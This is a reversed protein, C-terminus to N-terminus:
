VSELALERTDLDTRPSKKAPEAPRRRSRREIRALRHADYESRAVNTRANVIQVMEYGMLGGVFALTALTIATVRHEAGRAAAVALQIKVDGLVQFSVGGHM